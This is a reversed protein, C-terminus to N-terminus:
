AAPTNPATSVTATVASSALVNCFANCARMYQAADAGLGAAIQAATLGPMGTAGSVNPNAAQGAYGSNLVGLGNAVSSVLSKFLKAVAGLSIAIDTPTSAIPQAM